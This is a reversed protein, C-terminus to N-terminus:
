LDRRQPMPLCEELYLGYQPFHSRCKRVLVFHFARVSSWSSAEANRFVTLLMQVRSLSTSGQLMFAWWRWSGWPGISGRAIVLAATTHLHHPRVQAGKCGGELAGLVWNPMPPIGGSKAGVFSRWKAKLMFTTNQPHPPPSPAPAGMHRRDKSEKVAKLTKRFQLAQDARQPNATNNGDNPRAVTDTSASGQRTKDQRTWNQSLRFLVM